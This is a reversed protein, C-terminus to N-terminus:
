SGDKKIENAALLKEVTERRELGVVYEDSSKSNKYKKAIENYLKSGREVMYHGVGGEGKFGEVNARSAIDKEYVYFRLNNGGFNVKGKVSTRPTAETMKKLEEKILRKIKEITLKM